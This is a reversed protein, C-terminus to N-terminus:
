LYMNRLLHLLLLPALQAFSCLPATAVCSFTSGPALWIAPTCPRRWHRRTTCGEGGRTLRRLRASFLWSHLMVLARMFERLLRGEEDEWLDGREDSGADGREQPGLGRESKTREGFRSEEAPDLPFLTQPTCTPTSPSMTAQPSSSTSASTAPPPSRQSSSM